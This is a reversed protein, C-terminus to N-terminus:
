ERHEPALSVGELTPLATLCGLGGAQRRPCMQGPASQGGNRGTDELSCYFQWRPCRKVKIRPVGKGKEETPYPREEWKLRPLLDKTLKKCTHEYSTFMKCMLHCTPYEPVLYLKRLKQLASHWQRRADLVTKSYHSKKTKSAKLNKEKDEMNQFRIIAKSQKTENTGLRM